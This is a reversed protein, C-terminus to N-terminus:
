AFVGSIKAGVTFSVVFYQLKALKSELGCFFITQESSM